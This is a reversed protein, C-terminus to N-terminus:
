RAPTSRPWWATFTWCNWCTAPTQRPRALPAARKWIRARRRPESRRRNGSAPWRLRSLAALMSRPNARKPGNHSLIPWCRKRRAAAEAFRGADELRIAARLLSLTDLLAAQDYFRLEDATLAMGAVFYPQATVKPYWSWPMKLAGRIRVATSGEPDGLRLRAESELLDFSLGM